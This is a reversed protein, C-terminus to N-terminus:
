TNKQSTNKDIVAGLIIVFATLRIFYIASEPEQATRLLAFAREIGLLLFAVSFLAFLRDRSSLYFQRFFLCAVLSAMAITGSLFFYLM